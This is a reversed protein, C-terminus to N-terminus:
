DYYLDVILQPLKEEDVNFQTRFSGQVVEGPLQYIDDFTYDIVMDLIDSIETLEVNTYVRDAVDSVRDLAKDFDSTILTKLADLYTNLYEKQREMRIENSGSIDTNRHRIFEEVNSADVTVISGKTWEPNVEALLDDKVEVQMPGVVDQILSLDDLAITMYYTIPINHLLRSVADKTYLTSQKTSTGYAYSLALYSKDWGLFNHELDYIKIDVYASRDLQLIRYQSNERDFSLLLIFDSQGGDGDRTDVGTILFNMLHSNYSYEKGDVTYTHYDEDEQLSSTQRDNPKIRNPTCACLSLCTAASLLMKLLKM